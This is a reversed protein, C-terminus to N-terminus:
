SFREIVIKLNCPILAMGDVGDLSSPFLYSISGDLL